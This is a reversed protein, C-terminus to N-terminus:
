VPGAFLDITKQDEATRPRSTRPTSANAIQEDM